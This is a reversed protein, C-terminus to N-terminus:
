LFLVPEGLSRCLLLPSPLAMSMVLPLALAAPFRRTAATVPTSTAALTPPETPMAAMARAEVAAELELVVEVVDVEPVDDSELEDLEEPETLRPLPLLSL